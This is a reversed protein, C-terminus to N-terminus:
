CTRAGHHEGNVGLKVGWPRICVSMLMSRVKGMSHARLVPSMYTVAFAPSCLSALVVLESVRMEPAPLQITLALNM